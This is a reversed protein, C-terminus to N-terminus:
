LGSFEFASSLLDQTSTKMVLTDLRSMSTSSIGFSRHTNGTDICLRRELLFNASSLIQNFEVRYIRRSVISRIGGRGGRGM